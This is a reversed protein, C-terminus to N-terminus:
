LLEAMTSSPRPGGGLLLAPLWRQPPDPSPPCRMPSIRRTPSPPRRRSRARRRRSVASRAHRSFRRTPYSRCPADSFLPVDPVPAALLSPSSSSSPSSVRRRPSTIQPSVALHQDPLRRSIYFGWGETVPRIVLRSLLGKLRPDYYSWISFARRKDRNAELGM